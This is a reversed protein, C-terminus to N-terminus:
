VHPRGNRHVAYLSSECTPALEAPAMEHEHTYVDPFWGPGGGRIHLLGGLYASRTQPQFAAAEQGTALPGAHVCILGRTQILLASKPPPQRRPAPHAGLRPRDPCPAGTGPRLSKGM